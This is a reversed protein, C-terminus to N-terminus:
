IRSQPCRCMNKLKITHLTTSNIVQQVDCSQFLLSYVRLFAQMQCSTQQLRTKTSTRPVPARSMNHWLRPLSRKIRMSSLSSADRGQGLQLSASPPNTPQYFAFTWIGSLAQLM